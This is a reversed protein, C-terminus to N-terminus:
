TRIKKKVIVSALMASMVFVVGLVLMSDYGPIQEPPITTVFDFRFPGTGVPKQNSNLNVETLAPTSSPSLLASGQFALLAQFPGYAMNLTFRVATSNVVSVSQVLQTGNPCQWLSQTQAITNHNEVNFPAPLGTTYNFFWLMRDYNWKVAAPTLPTGDHFTVGSKINVDLVMANASWNWSSALLPILPASPTSYNYAWLGECIQGLVDYSASDWAFIPEWHVPADSTGWVAINTGNALNIPYFYPQDMVNMSYGSIRDTWVDQLRGQHTFIWPYLDNQTYNMIDNYAAQRAEETTAALSADISANLHADNVHAMNSYSRYGMLPRIYDDPHNFDPGWGMAFLPYFRQQDWYQLATTEAGWDAAVISLIRVGILSACYVLLDGIQQRVANGSNYTYNYTAIPQNISRWIWDAQTMTGNALGATVLVNRATALDQASVYPIDANYYNMGAPIIGHLKDVLGAMITNLHYSYNYSLALAKRMTRNIIENNMGIYQIVLSNVGSHQSVGPVEFTNNVFLNPLPDTLIDIEQNLMANNRTTPDNIISYLVGSMSAAGGWYAGYRSLYVYDNPIYEAKVGGLNAMAIVGMFSMSLMVCIAMSKKKSMNSKVM